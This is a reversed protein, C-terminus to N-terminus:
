FGPQRSFMKSIGDFGMRTVVAVTKALTHLLTQTQPASTFSRQPPRVCESSPPRSARQSHTNDSIGDKDAPCDRQLPRSESVCM